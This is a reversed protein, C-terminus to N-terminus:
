FQDLPGLDAAGPVTWGSSDGAGSLDAVMPVARRRPAHHARWGVTRDLVDPGIWGQATRAKRTWSEAGAASLVAACSELTGDAAGVERVDWTGAAEVGVVYGFFRSARRAVRCRVAADPRDLLDFFAHTRVRLYEWTEADREVTLRAGSSRCAEHARRVDDWDTRSMPALSVGASGDRAARGIRARFETAALAVFGQRAYFETGVDSYLVAVRDGEHRALDLVAAVLAAAFGRRRHRPPTFVAGLFTASSVVGDVRVPLRYRKLSSLIEGSAAVWVLFNARRRAFPTARLRRWLELYDDLALGGGWTAHSESLLGAVRDEAIPALRPGDPSLVAGSGPM